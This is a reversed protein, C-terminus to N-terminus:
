AGQNCQSLLCPLYKLQIMASLFIQQRIQNIMRSSILFFFEAFNQPISFSISGYSPLATQAFIFPKLAQGAKHAGSGASNM